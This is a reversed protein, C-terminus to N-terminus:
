SRKLHLCTIRCIRYKLMLFRVASRFIKSNAKLISNILLMSKRESTLTTLIQIIVRIPLMRLPGFKEYDIKAFSLMVNGCTHRLSQFWTRNGREM